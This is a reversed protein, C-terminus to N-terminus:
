KSFCCWKSENAKKSVLGADRTKVSFSEQPDVASVDAPTAEAYFVFPGQQGASEQLAPWGQLPQLGVPPLMLGQPMQLGIPQFGQQM